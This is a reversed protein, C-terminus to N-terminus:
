QRLATVKLENVMRICRAQKKDGEVVIRVPGASAILPKGNMKYALIITRGSISPEVEGLGFAVEYGDDAVALVYTALEKGRLHDAMALGAKALVEDIPVGEYSNVTGDHETLSLTKHTMGDLQALTLHLPTPVDGTVGLSYEKQKVPGSAFSSALLAFAIVVSCINRQRM